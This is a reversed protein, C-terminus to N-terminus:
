MSPPPALSGHVKKKAIFTELEELKGAQKYWQRVDKLMAVGITPTHALRYMVREHEGWITGDRFEPWYYMLVIPHMEMVSLRVRLPHEWAPYPNTVSMKSLLRNRVEQLWKKKPLTRFGAYLVIYPVWFPDENRVQVKVHGSIPDICLCKLKVKWGLKDNMMTSLGRPLM